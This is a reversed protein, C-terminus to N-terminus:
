GTRAFDDNIIKVCQAVQEPTSRPQDCTFLVQQRLDRDASLNYGWFAFGGLLILVIALYGILRTTSTNTSTRHISAEPRDPPQLETEAESV